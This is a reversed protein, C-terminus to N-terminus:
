RALRCIGASESATWFISTRDVAIPIPGKTSGPAGAVRRPDHTADAAIEWPKPAGATPSQCDPTVLDLGDRNRAVTKGKGKRSRRWNRM